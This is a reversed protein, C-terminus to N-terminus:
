IGRVQRMRTVYQERTVPQVVVPVPGVKEGKKPENPPRVSSLRVGEPCLCAGAWPMSRGHPDPVPCWGSDLCVPCASM